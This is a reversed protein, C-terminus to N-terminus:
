KLVLVFIFADKIYVALILYLIPKMSKMLNWGILTMSKIWCRGMTSRRSHGYKSGIDSFGYTWVRPRMFSDFGFHVTMSSILHDNTFTFQRFSRRHITKFASIIRQIGSDQFGIEIPEFGNVKAPGVMWLGNLNNWM